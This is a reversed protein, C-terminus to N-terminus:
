SSVQSFYDEVYKKIYGAIENTISKNNREVFYEYLIDFTANMPPYYDDSLLTCLQHYYGAWDELIMDYNQFYALALFLSRKTDPPIPKEMKWKDSLSEIAPIIISVIFDDPLLQSGWYGKVEWSVRFYNKKKVETWKLKIDERSQEDRSLILIPINKEKWIELAIDLGSLCTLPSGLRYDMIILDSQNVFAMITKWAKERYAKELQKEEEEESAINEKANESKEPDYIYIKIASLLSEFGKSPKEPERDDKSPIVDYVRQNTASDKKQILCDRLAKYQNFQNDIILIKSM